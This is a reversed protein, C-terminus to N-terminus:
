NIFINNIPTQLTLKSDGRSIMKANKMRIFEIFM